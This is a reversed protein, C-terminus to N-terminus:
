RQFECMEGQLDSNNGKDGEEDENDSEDLCTSAQLAVESEFTDLVGEILRLNEDQESENKENSKESRTNRWGSASIKLPRM